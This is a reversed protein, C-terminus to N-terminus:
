RDGGDVGLIVLPPNELREVVAASYPFVGATGAHVGIRDERVRFGSLSDSDMASDPEIFSVLDVLLDFPGLGSEPTLKGGGDGM